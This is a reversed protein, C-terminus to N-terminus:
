QTVMRYVLIPVGLFPLSLCFRHVSGVYGFVILLRYERRGILFLACHMSFSRPKCGQEQLVLEYIPPKSPCESDRAVLRTIPLSPM